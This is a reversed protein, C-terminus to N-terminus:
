VLVISLVSRKIFVMSYTASIYIAKQIRPAPLLTLPMIQGGQNSYPKSIQWIEPPPPRQGGAGRYSCRQLYDREAFPAPVDILKLQRFSALNNTEICM